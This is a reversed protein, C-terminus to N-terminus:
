RSERSPSGKRRRISIRELACSNVANGGSTPAKALSVDAAERRKQDDSQPDAGRQDDEVAERYQSETARRPLWSVRQQMDPTGTSRMTM